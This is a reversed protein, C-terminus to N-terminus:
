SIALTLRVGRSVQSEPDIMPLMTSIEGVSSQKMFIATAFFEGGQSEITVISGSVLPSTLPQTL